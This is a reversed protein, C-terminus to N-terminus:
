PTLQIQLLAQFNVGYCQYHRSFYALINSTVKWTPVQICCLWWDLAGICGDLVGNSCINQYELAVVKLDHSSEPFHVCIDDFLGGAM